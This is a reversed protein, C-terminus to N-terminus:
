LVEVTPIGKSAAYAKTQELTDFLSYECRIGQEVLEKMRAFVLPDCQKESFLLIQTKPPVTDGKELLVRSLQNVNVAFGTAPLAQGFDQMLKDYRGGSLVPEGVGDVYGRFIIGTYYEAQNVLGLDVIVKEGLGLAQLSEYVSRLEDLVKKGNPFLKAAQDIVDCGGFMEPLKALATVAESEPYSKLVDGLAAYNKSEILERIKEKETDDAELNNMLQKFYGIHCIELRYNEISCHTLGNAALELIELDAKISGAGILEVGTQTIENSFGKMSPNSRYVNQDYYLRVPKELGALRTGMLRAIPITCDPRMVMLRGKSDTLKYMTEQPFYAANSYFVDYFELGPTMVEDFGRHRFFRALRREISRKAECQEFLIDRTGDPTIKDHIKM